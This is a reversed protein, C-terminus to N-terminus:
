CCVCRNNQKVQTAPTLVADSNEGSIPQAKVREIIQTTLILFVENVNTSNEASTEIFEMGM